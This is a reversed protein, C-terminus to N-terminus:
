VPDGTNGSRAVGTLVATSGVSLTSTQTPITQYDTADNGQIRGDTWVVGSDVAIGAGASMARRNSSISNGVIALDRFTGTVRLGISDCDRIANGRVDVHLLEQDTARLWMGYGKGGRVINDHIQTRGESQYAAGRSTVLIGSGTGFGSVSIGDEIINDSVIACM